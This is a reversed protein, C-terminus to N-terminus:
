TPTSSGKRNPCSMYADVRPITRGHRRLSTHNAGSKGQRVVRGADVRRQQMSRQPRLRGGLHGPILGVPLEKADRSRVDGTQQSIQQAQLKRQGACKKKVMTKGLGEPLARSDPEPTENQASSEKTPRITSTSDWRSLRPEPPVFNSHFRETPQNANRAVVMAAAREGRAVLVGAKQRCSRTSETKM